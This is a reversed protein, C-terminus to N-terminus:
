GAAAAPITQLGRIVRCPLLIAIVTTATTVSNRIPSGNCRVPLAPATRENRTGVSAVMAMKATIQMPNFMWHPYVPIKLKPTAAKKM